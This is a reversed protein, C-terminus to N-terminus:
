TPADRRLRGRARKSLDTLKERVTPEPPAPPPYKPAEQRWVAATASSKVMAIHVSTFLNGEHSLLIHPYQSWDQIGLDSREAVAGKLDVPALRTEESVGTDLPNAPDWWLGDFIAARLAGEDFLYLGPWGDAEGAVRFETALAAVGGPKLVRYIEEISRRIEAFGGFHEISSSSFVADFHDDPFELELANMSRVELREPNWPGNWFRGPDTLMDASSDTASWADDAEYLDTAIVRRVKRTLWYITAEYGAGVGLVEADDRLAGLDEFARATMAVEWYKRYERGDPFNREGFHQRDPEFIERILNRLDPDRFDELECLKCHSLATL